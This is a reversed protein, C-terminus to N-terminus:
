SAPDEQSRQTGISQASAGVSRAQVQPMYVLGFRMTTSCQSRPGYFRPISQVYTRALLQPLLQKWIPDRRTTGPGSRVRPIYMVNFQLILLFLLDILRFDPTFGEGLVHEVLL